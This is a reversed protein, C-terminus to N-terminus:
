LHSQSFGMSKCRFWPPYSADLSPQSPDLTRVFHIAGHTIKSWVEVVPRDVGVVAQDVGRPTCPAAPERGDGKSAKPYLAEEKQRKHRETHARVVETIRAPDIVGVLECAHQWKGPDAFAKTYINAARDSTDCYSLEYEEEQFRESLWAVSVGHTRGIHRMAPNKGTQCVRIM